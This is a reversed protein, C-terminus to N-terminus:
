ATKLKELEATAAAIEKELRAVEDPEDMQQKAGHLQQRLKQLKQQLVDMRKKAKKDM